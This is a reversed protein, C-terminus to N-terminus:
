HTVVATRRVARRRVGFVDIFLATAGGVKPPTGEILTIDYILDDGEMRPNQLKVVINQLDAKGTELVSVAANPPDKVFADKDERFERWKPVFQERTAIQGAQREPRDTFWLTSNSVNKLRLTGKDKDFVVGTGNQVFLVQIAPEPAAPTQAWVAYPLAILAAVLGSALFTWKSM